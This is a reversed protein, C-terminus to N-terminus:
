KGKIGFIIISSIMGFGLSGAVWYFMFLPTILWWLEYFIYILVGSIILAMTGHLIRSVVGYIEVAIAFFFIWRFQPLLAALIIPAGLIFGFVLAKLQWAKM